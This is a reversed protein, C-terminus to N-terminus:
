GALDIALTINRGVGDETFDGNGNYYRIPKKFGEVMSLLKQSKNAALRLRNKHSLSDEDAIEKVLRASAGCSDRRLPM